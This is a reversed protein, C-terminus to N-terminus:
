DFFVDRQVPSTEASQYFLIQKKEDFGYVDTIDWNGKTLQKMLTGNMNYQYVHRYGDQESVAIFYKNDTSFRIFDIDEYDVYYKDNQQWILKSVTSKPNSFFMELKNQNRNLKFVALQELSNTWLIRPIYFDQGDGPLQMTKTQKHFEDYVCVSVKSNKEGAKPYKYSFLSPYLNLETNEKSNSKFFQFSFENVESENFKVFALMKSDPSWDFYRTSSFEEEYVWDPTGNIIKGWEGDKTIPIETKFDLKYLFLNNKRAFAIYRSDPSFLPVEQAGLTSLPELENRKVDFVYYDATFTRRYRKKSNTYVLMKAENPSFEYGEIQKMPANKLRSISFITDITAGTKYNYKVVAKNDVLLTYHEGDNMSLPTDVKKVRFKGDTIDYLLNAHLFFISFTLVFILTFRKM